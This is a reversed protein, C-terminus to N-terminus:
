PLVAYEPHLDRKENYHYIFFGRWNKPLKQYFTQYRLLKELAGVHVDHIGAETIIVDKEGFMRFYVDYLAHFEGRDTTDTTLWHWGYIHASLADCRKMQDAMIEIWREWRTFAFVRPSPAILRVKPYYQRLIQITEALYYRYEWITNDSKTEQEWRVDPENGLEVWVNETRYRLFPRMEHLVQQPELHWRAAKNSPDGSTTRLVISGKWNMLEHISAEDWASDLGWSPIVKVANMFHRELTTTLRGVTSTNTLVMGYM